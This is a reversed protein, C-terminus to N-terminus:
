HLLSTLLIVYMKSVSITQKETRIKNENCCNLFSCGSLFCDNETNVFTHTIVQYLAEDCSNQIGLNVMTNTLTRGM